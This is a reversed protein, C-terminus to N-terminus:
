MDSGGTIAPSDPDDEEVPLTDAVAKAPALLLTLEVMILIGTIFRAVYLGAQIFVMMGSGVYLIYTGIGTAYHTFLSVAGMLALLSVWPAKRRPSILMVVAIITLVVVLAIFPAYTIGYGPILYRLDNTWYPNSLKSYIETAVMLGYYAMLLLVPISLWRKYRDAAKISKLRLMFLVNFTILLISIVMYLIYMSSNTTYDPDMLSTVLDALVFCLLAVASITTLLIVIRTPIFNSEKQKVFVGGLPKGKNYCFCCTFALFFRGM